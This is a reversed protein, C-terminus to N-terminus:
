FGYQEEQKKWILQYSEALIFTDEVLKDLRMLVDDSVIIQNSFDLEEIFVYSPVTIAKMYTLIPKLQSEAVLYHKPSGATMILSIIKREFAKPPLLDFVNKLSGPISAQFTPSGIFIVDATMLTSVLLGTDGTYDLYNRGDSFEIDLEKLDLFNVEYDPFQEKIKLATTELAIRTKSGVTSGSLLAIKM